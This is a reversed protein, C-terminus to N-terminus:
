TAGPHYLILAYRYWGFSETRETAIIAPPNSLVSWAQEINKGLPKPDIARAKPYTKAVYNQFDRTQGSRSDAQILCTDTSVAVAPNRNDIVYATVGRAKRPLPVYGADRLKTEAADADRPGNTCFRDFARVLEYPTSKPVMNARWMNRLEATDAPSIGSPGCSVLALAGFLYAVLRKM